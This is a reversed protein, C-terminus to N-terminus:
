RKLFNLLNDPSVLIYHNNDVLGINIKPSLRCQRQRLPIFVQQHHLGEAFRTRHSPHPNPIRHSARSQYLRQFIHAIRIVGIGHIQRRLNQAHLSNPILSIKCLAHPFNYCGPLLCLSPQPLHSKRERIRPRIKDKGRM